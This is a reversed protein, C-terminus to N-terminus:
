TSNRSARSAPGSRTSASQRRTRPLGLVLRGHVPRARRGRGGPGAPAVLLALVFILGSRMPRDKEEMERREPKRAPPRGNGPLSSTRLGFGADETM